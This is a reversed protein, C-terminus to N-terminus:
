VHYLDVLFCATFLSVRKEHIELQSVCTNSYGLNNIQIHISVEQQQQEAPTSTSLAVEAKTGQVEQESVSNTQLFVILFNAELM